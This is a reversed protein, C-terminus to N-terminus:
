KLIKKEKKQFPAKNQIKKEKKQTDDEKKVLIEKKNLDEKNLSSDKQANVM